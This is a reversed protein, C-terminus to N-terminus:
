SMPSTSLSLIKLKKLWDTFNPGTLRNDDMIDRLPNTSSM